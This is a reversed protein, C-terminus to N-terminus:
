GMANNGSRGIGLEEKREEIRATLRALLREEAEDRHPKDRLAHKFIYAQQLTMQLMIFKGM